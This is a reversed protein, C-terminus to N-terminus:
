VASGLADIALVRVIFEGLYIRDRPRLAVEGRIRRSNLYTGNTSGLDRLLYRDGRAEIRAHRKSVSGKDLILDAEGTRGILIGRGDHPSDFSRALKGGARDIIELAIM